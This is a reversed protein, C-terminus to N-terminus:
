IYVIYSFINVFALDKKDKIIKTYKKYMDMYIGGPVSQATHGRGMGPSLYM